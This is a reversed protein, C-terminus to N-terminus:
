GRKKMKSSSMSLNIRTRSRKLKPLTPITQAKKQAAKCANMWKLMSFCTRPLTKAEKLPIRRASAILSRPPYPELDERKRKLMRMMMKRDWYPNRQSRIRFDNTPMRSIYKTATRYNSNM